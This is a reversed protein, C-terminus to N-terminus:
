IVQLFSIIAKDVTKNGEMSMPLLLKIQNWVMSRIGVYVNCVYMHINLIEKKIICCKRLFNNKEWRFNITLSKTTQDTTRHKTCLNDM